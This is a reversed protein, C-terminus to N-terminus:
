WGSTYRRAPSMCSNPWLPRRGGSESRPPWVLPAVAAGVGQVGLQRAEDYTLGSIAEEHRGLVAGLRESFGEHLGAVADGM